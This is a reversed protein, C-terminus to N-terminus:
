EQEYPNKAFPRRRQHPLPCPEGTLVEVAALAVAKAILRAGSTQLAWDWALEGIRDLQEDTLSAAREALGDEGYAWLDAAIARREDEPPM